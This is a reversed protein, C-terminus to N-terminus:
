HKRLEVWYWGRIDGVEFGTAHDAPYRNLLTQRVAPTMLTLSGHCSSCMPQEVIPRLVGVRDGLDAVFGSVDKAKRGANARVAPLAWAPPANAPNRLRDSTRGAAIDRAAGIRRAAADADLHCFTFASVTGHRRLADALERLLAGHMDVILLDAQEVAPRFRVPARDISWSDLQIAAAAATTVSMAVIVAVRASTM